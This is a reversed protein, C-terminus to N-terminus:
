NAPMNMFASRFAEMDAQSGYFWTSWARTNGAILIAEAVEEDTAGAAKAAGTDAWICYQCPIQAAVALSILSKTKADLATDSFELAKIHEWASPLIARPYPKIFDPVAGFTATIEAIAADYAPNADEAAAAVPLALALALGALGLRFTRTM